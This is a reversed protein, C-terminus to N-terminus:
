AVERTLAPVAAVRETLQPLHVRFHCYEGTTTGIRVHGGLRRVIERVADLGAGRGGDQDATARTSVGPDFILSVLSRMEAKAAAEPTLRGTRVAAERIAVPDIGRGDDRFSLEVGSSGGDAVYISLRGAEPKGRGKREAPTEIGHVLANRIFQNVISNLAERQSPPLLQLDMGQYSIEIQKDQRQAIEAAFQQWQRVFPRLAAQPDHPPRPPEVTVVGRIQAMRTLATRIAEMEGYLGKVRVAVPLLDEGGLNSRQRLASLVDELGHFSQALGDLRLSAADGKVRHALRLIASVKSALPEAVTPQSELIRNIEDLGEGASKLFDQMMRPEVQLIQLLLGMQGQARAESEQLERELRVRRTIDNVTVLLHTVKGAETVRNFSFQLYRTDVVGPGQAVSLEVCDLPNLGTVLKEKVDHRLLLDIYERATDLTKQTVLPRLVDLLNTGAPMATGIIRPLVRSQQTGMRYDADLLFLGEQTTRLIDDTEKRASEIARDSQRLHRLFHFLIVLFNITALTIGAIQVARLKTAQAAAIEGIRTTFDNMLTLLWVNVVESQRAVREAKEVSPTAMAVLERVEDRYPEWQGLADELIQQVREDDVRERLIDGGSDPDPTSGGNRYAQLTQDFVASARDLELLLERVPQGAKLRQEIQLSAKAMRQSLMRQRGVVNVNIANDKIQSSIVFNTVLVGLDFLLFLAIAIVMTRYKGLEFGFM